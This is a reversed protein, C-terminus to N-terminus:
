QTSQPAVSIPLQEQKQWALHELELASIYEPHMLEIIEIYAVEACQPGCAYGAVQYPAFLLSIKETDLVFTSFDEWKETGADVREREFSDLEESIQLSLDQYLKKRAKAKIINLAERPNVFLDSLSPVLAVPNLLFCYTKFYYNPHAAGAGYWDVAYQVTLVRGAIVPESCHADHTNTRRYKDQGYNFLEPSQALKQSRHYFLDKLMDGKIHESIEFVNPYRDSRFDLLQLEVEYGPLGDWAEKRIQSSWHLDERLQIKQLEVGLREFQFKLSKALKENCQADEAFLCQIPKIQDPIKLGADLVVPILYIDDILRESLKDLAIKLERQVYGRREFSNLSIFAIVLSSKEFARKIEFDWNQGPMLKKCDMWVNFGQQTLWTVYPLVRERDPTAYSIFIQNEEQHMMLM